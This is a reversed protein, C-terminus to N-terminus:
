YTMIGVITIYQSCTTNYIKLDCERWQMCTASLSKTNTTDITNGNSHNDLSALISTIINNHFYKDCYMHM